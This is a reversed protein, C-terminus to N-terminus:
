SEGKLENSSHPSHLDFVLGRTLLIITASEAPPLIVVVPEMQGVEVEFFAIIVLLLAQLIPKPLQLIISMGTPVGNGCIVTCTICALPM